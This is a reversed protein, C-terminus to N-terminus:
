HHVVQLISNRIQEHLVMRADAAVAELTPGQYTLRGGDAVQVVKREILLDIFNAFQGREFFEPANLAYLISMRQATLQCRQELVEQPIEGSGARLLLSIALYFRELIPVTAQALLSLQISEGAEAPPRRWVSRDDGASLLGHREFEDLLADVVAPLEPESWRLFYEDAVYPYVRWALRHLDARSVSPNNLFACAVLSPMVLLHLVNNRNYSCLIANQEDMQIIDGLAQPSRRLMGLSEGHRIMARGDADTIWVHDSYGTGRLLAAYLNLQRALDDEGMSQRPTALLVLSLLNIPSVCAAANIRTMVARALENVVPTLAASDEALVRGQGVAVGHAQLLSELPLPEGFSVYVRGFRGRLQPLTRLMGLISEKEKPRGSLEGTYTRGEVLREYGFYVPAFVVPRRPDRLYSRVTMALMGTKPQLLRGSRSRGGEIFYEISHGRAMMLGLYGNFVATYIANGGFSRRLFFAGGRRLWAGVVPLNLNIGAAIHPTAFGRHYVVYSLLLYDMHSRHCPVYVIESGEPISQLSAFNVVEVGAYLRNWLRGLVGSLFVVFPHSYDAAIEYAYRHAVELAERRSLGRERMDARVAERVARTRLVQAVISQRHSLEPGITAVHQNRMQVRLQRWIRRAARTPSEGPAAGHARLPLPDGFLVLLNRGNILLSLLKRLRGTIDWGEAVLLPFWTRERDPARGWFMSVPILDADLGDAAAAESLLRMEDTLRRDIRNGFWGRSRELFTVPRVLAAASGAPETPPPLGNNRCVHDLVALDILGRKELVYVLPRGRLLRSRVDQPLVAPAIWRSVCWRLLPWSFRELAGPGATM